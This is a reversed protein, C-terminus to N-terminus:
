IEYLHFLTTLTKIVITLTAIARRGLFKEKEQLLTFNTTIVLSKHCFLCSHDLFALKQQRFRKSALLILM